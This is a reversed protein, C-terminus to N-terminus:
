TKGLLRQKMFTDVHKKADARSYGKRILHAVLRAEISDDDGKKTGAGELDEKMFAGISSVALAKYFEDSSQVTAQKDLSKALMSISCNPNVPRFTLAINYIAAKEVYKGCDSRKLVKGEVSQCLGRNLGAKRLNNHQKVVMETDYGDWIPMGKLILGESMWQGNEFWAKKGVPVGVMAHSIHNWNFEGHDIFPSFDLGKQLLIEGERDKDATSAVGKFHYGETDGVKEAKLLDVSGMHAIFTGDSRVVFSNEISENLM